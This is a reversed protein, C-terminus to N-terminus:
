RRSLKVTGKRQKLEELCSYKAETDFSYKKIKREWKKRNEPKNLWSDTYEELTRINKIKGTIVGKKIEIHAYFIPEQFSSSEKHYVLERKAAHIRCDKSQCAGISDLYHFKMAGISDGKEFVDLINELDKTQFEMESEKKCYPCKTKLIISDFLGM